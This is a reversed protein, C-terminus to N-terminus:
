DIIICEEEEAEDWDEVIDIVEHKTPRVDQPVVRSEVANENILNNVPVTGAQWENNDSPPHARVVNNKELMLNGCRLDVPGTIYLNWNKMLPTLAEIREVELAKISTGSRDQLQIMLMRASNKNLRNETATEEDEPEEIEDIPKEPPKSIDCVDVVRLLYAGNLTTKFMESDGRNFKPLLGYDLERNSYTRKM